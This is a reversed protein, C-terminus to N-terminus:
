SDKSCREIKKYQIICPIILYLAYAIVMWITFSIIQQSSFQSFLNSSNYLIYTDLILGIATGCIGLKIVAYKTTDLRKYLWMVFYLAIATALELFTLQLFFRNSTYELLVSSGFIIFFASAFFWVGISFLITLWLKNNM